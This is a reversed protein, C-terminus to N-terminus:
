SKLSKYEKEFKSVEGSNVPNALYKAAEEMTAGLINKANKNDVINSNVDTTLIGVEIYKKIDSKNKLDKDNAAELFENPYNKAFTYLEMYVDKDEYEEYETFTIVNKVIAINRLLASSDKIARLKDTAKMELEAKESSRQKAVKEDFLFFRINPSKDFDETTNAVQNSISCLCWYLYDKVNDFKFYRHYDIIDVKKNSLIHTAIEKESVLVDEFEDADEKKEKAKVVKKYLDSSYDKIYTEIYKLLNKNDLDFTSNLDLPYGSSPISIQLSSIYDQKEREWESNNNNNGIIIPLVIDSFTNNSLITNVVKTTTGLSRAQTAYAAKNLSEYVSSAIKYKITLKKNVRIM